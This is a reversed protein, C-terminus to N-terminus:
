VPAAARALRAPPAGMPPASATGRRGRRNRPPAATTAYGILVSGSAEESGGEGAVVVGPELFGTGPDDETVTILPQGVSVATGPAAHLAAVTGAYPVPVEVVAKATEVEAIVRDVTVHEGVQVRWAVVEAEDLGEGLDPLLFDPVTPRGSCAHSRTSSATPTRCTSSSSTRRRILIDLGTVRLIPAELYHFCQETLRAAVEAGYGGFGAAEHVIV